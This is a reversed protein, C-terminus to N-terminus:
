PSSTAGAPHDAEFFEWPPSVFVIWPLDHPLDTMRRPWLLVDGARVDCRDAVGVTSISLPLDDLRVGGEAKAQSHCRVCHSTLVERASPEMSPASQGEWASGPAPFIMAVTLLPWSYGITRPM